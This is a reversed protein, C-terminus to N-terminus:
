SSSVDFGVKSSDRAEGDKGDANLMTGSGLSDLFESSQRSTAMVVGNIPVPAFFSVVVETGTM